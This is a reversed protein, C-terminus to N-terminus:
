QKSVKKIFIDKPYGKKILESKLSDAEQRNSFIGTTYRYFKDVDNHMVKIDPIYKFYSVDVPNYLAIVQVTYFLVDSDKINKDGVERVNMNRILISTDIESVAPIHSLNIKDTVVQAPPPKMNSRDRNLSVDINVALSPNNQLMSTDITLPMFGFGTYILKFKGFPVSFSYLGTNKNPFSTDLTDGTIKDILYISFNEDLTFLTDNVSVKGKIEFLQNARSSGITLYFIDKKKYGTVMSYYANRGNNFPQFFKDDDTSNVPFGLNSPSTWITGIKLSRFIDFGGMSNHGESCFYLVSDNQTVFPTDENYPTNINAGLNMAPGWEGKSDKQSVYIDLNGRGGERNSSFYLKKGNASICAHSEYFKTNINGDLKKIPLWSGNKYNSSYINGDYNDSKYLYLETGDSNLSCSSCDQGANLENTIDVPPQFKGKEKKSMFLVNVEGRRETFVMTNGDYSVVPNDNISGPSFDSGLTKKSFIFPNREFQIANKCAQIQQDIYNLNKMGGKIQIEQALKKFLLLTNLAKELDNNIMYGKALFFYAELPARTESFSETKSSYTATKVAAELYPVSKDKEGPINLYCVGIKYKINFNDPTELLLYLQNALEYQEFLYYSEAKSFLKRMENYYDSSDVDPVIDLPFLQLQLLIITFSFTVM